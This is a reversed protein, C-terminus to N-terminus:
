ESRRSINSLGESAHRHVVFFRDGQNGAAVGEAFGVASSHRRLVDSGLWLGRIDFLLAEAPPACEPGALATVCDAAAQFDDPGGRRGLPAVVEEFVQEVVFPFQGLTGRASM